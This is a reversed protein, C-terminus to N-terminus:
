FQFVVGTMQMNGSVDLVVNSAVTTKNIAINSNFFGTKKVYINGNLSTDSGVLLRSNLSVDSNFSVKGGVVLRSNMSVDDNLITKTAVYFNGQGQYNADVNNNVILDFSSDNFISASSKLTVMASNINSNVTLANVDIRLVNNSSPAKINYGNMDNAVKLYGALDDNNDRIQIGAGGSSGSSIAGDNIQILNSNVLLDITTQNQVNGQLIVTDNLNGVYVTSKITANRSGIYIVNNNQTSGLYLDSLKTDYARSYIVSNTDINLDKLYTTQSVSLNGNLSTDKIVFLRSSLTTDGNVFLRSSMFADNTNIQTGPIQIISQSGGINIQSTAGGINITSVTDNLLNFTSNNSKLQGSGDICIDGTIGMNGSIDLVKNNSRNFLNPYFGYLIKSKGVTNGAVYSTSVDAVVFSNLDPMFVSRLNNNTNTIRSGTGASNLITSPVTQWTRSGNVTYMITGLVGVAIANSTDYIYVSNLTVGPNNITTWNSADYTYSIINEGVAVAYSTDFAFVGNYITGQKITYLSVPNLGSVNIKQIGNGVIYMFNGSGDSDNIINLSIDIANYYTSSPFTFSSNIIYNFLQPKSPNVSINKGAILLNHSGDVRDYVYITSYTRNISGASGDVIQSWISGSNSTYYLVNSSSGNDTSSSVFAYTQNYVYANFTQIRNDVNNVGVNTQSWSKGSNSTYSVTQTYQKTLSSPSGVAIGYGSSRKSFKMQLIEYNVRAMTNVEGNGIRTPGNIDLVYTESKPAYTNIGTCTLYKTVSNGSIITHSPIYNGSVTTIGFTGMSRTYDNIFTGGGISFGNRNPTSINLFTSSSSDSTILSLANGSNVVTNEYYDYLYPNTSIDYITVLEGNINKYVNRNSATTKSKLLIGASSDITTIASTSITTDGSLTSILTNGTTTKYISGSASTVFINNGTLAINSSALTLQSSTSSITSASTNGIIYNIASSTGDTASVNVGTLNSNQALINTVSSASTRASFATTSSSHIDFTSLANSPVNTGDIGFAGTVSNGYFYGYNTNNTNTTGYFLKGTIYADTKVSLLFVNGTGALNFDGNNVNLTGVINFDTTNKQRLLVSDAVLTGVGVSHFKDTKQIGGYQKWSSNSM